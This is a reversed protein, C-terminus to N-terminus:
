SQGEGALAEIIQCDEIRGGSCSEIVRYLESKLSSLRAIRREVDEAQARAIRIVAECSLDPHQTLELLERVAAQPFGLERCRRIFTLREVHTPDYIRQNGRSRRPEPLLGIKEYYRITPVKCATRRALQGISLRASTM